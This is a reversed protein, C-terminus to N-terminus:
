AALARMREASMARVLIHKGDVWRYEDSRLGNIFDGYPLEPISQSNDAPVFVMRWAHLEDGDIQSGFNVTPKYPLVTDVGESLVYFGVFKGDEEFFMQRAFYADMNQYAVLQESFTMVPDDNALVQEIMERNFAMPHAVGYIECVETETEHTLMSKIAHLGSLIDPTYDFLALDAVELEDGYESIIPRDLHESLRGLYALAQQWDQVATPTNIRVQYCGKSFSLEFGRGSVGLCALQLCDFKDLPTAYFADADFDDAREDIGVQVLEAMLDLCEQVSLIKKPMFFIRPNHISFTVSM